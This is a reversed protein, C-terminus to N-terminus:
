AQRQTPLADSVQSIWEATSAAKPPAQVVYLNNQQIHPTRAPATAKVIEVLESNKFPANTDLREMLKDLARKGAGEMREELSAKLYPDVIEGKREALRQKFSDSNVIISLWSQTFGLERAIDAQRLRPNAIMMDIIAEHHWRVTAIEGM